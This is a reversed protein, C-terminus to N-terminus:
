GTPNKGTPSEDPWGRDKPLVAWPAEAGPCLVCRGLDREGAERSQSKGTGRASSRAEEEEQAKGGLMRVVVRSHCPKLHKIFSNEGDECKSIEMSISSGKM